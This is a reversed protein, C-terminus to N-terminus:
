VLFSRFILDKAPELYISYAVDVTAKPPTPRRREDVLTMGRTHKGELEVVVERPVFGILRSEVAALVACPDHLAAFNSGLYQGVNAILGQLAEFAFKSIASHDPYRMRRCLEAKSIQVQHTLNLGCMRLVGGSRIVIDAAEPDFYVNFEAAATVNGHLASGGMMSIGAIRSHWTKDRQIASAINTLPGLAVVWLDPSASDLLFEVANASAVKRNHQPLEVGNLGSEGHIETAYKPTAVLPRDAGSHVESDIGLLEAIALANATTHELPANGAVTTIGAIDAISNALILAVADDYGPDCDVLIRM